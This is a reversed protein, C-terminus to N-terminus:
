LRLTKIGVPQLVRARISPALVSPERLLLPEHLRCHGQRSHAPDLRAGCETAACKPKKRQERRYHMECLGDAYHPRPKEHRPLTSMCVTCSRQYKAKPRAM